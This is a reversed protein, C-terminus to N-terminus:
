QGNSDGRRKEKYAEILEDYRKNFETDITQLEPNELLTKVAKKAIDSYDVESRYNPAVSKIKSNDFVASAIKDGYLEAEFDPFYKIIFETPIYIINPTVGVAECIIENIREWTYVKDSTLHYYEGYTKPNGLVDVFAHAFDENYTLTWLEVGQDPMIIEKGHLMRDIMTYPHNRSKLQSILKDDDYTHSPRIITVNFADNHVSLLYEECKKKNESYDWYKNGLPMEETIPLFPLPKFYASASSIFVFQKTHGKFLRYDRKVHDVTFSIWQVIVDFYMGELLSNIQDENYIDGQLVTVEKPLKNNHKGRNLVYLDINKKVALRSVATSIIGSGGIFLVKM